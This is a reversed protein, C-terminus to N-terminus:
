TNVTMFIFMKEFCGGYLCEMCTREDCTDCTRMRDTHQFVQGVSEEAADAKQMKCVMAGNNDCGKFFKSCNGGRWECVTDGNKTGKQHGNSCACNPLTEAVESEAECLSKPCEKM